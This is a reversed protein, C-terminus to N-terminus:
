GNKKKEKEKSSDFKDQHGYGHGSIEGTTINLTFRDHDDKKSVDGFYSDIVIEGNVTKRVRTMGTKSISVNLEEKGM